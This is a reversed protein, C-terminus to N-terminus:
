IEKCHFDTLVLHRITYYLINFILNVLVYYCYGKKDEVCHFERADTLQNLCTDSSTYARTNWSTSWFFPTFRHLQSFTMMLNVARSWIPLVSWWSCEVDDVALCGLLDNSSMMMLRYCSDTMICCLQTTALLLFWKKMHHGLSTSGALNWDIRRMRARRGTASGSKAVIGWGGDSHNLLRNSAFHISERHM